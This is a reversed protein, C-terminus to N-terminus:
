SKRGRGPGNGRGASAGGSRAVPASLRTGGGEARDVTLMGGAQEARERLNHLGSHAVTAPVGIGDDTVDIALDNDVSLTVTITTAHAHRIADSLAERVVAEAHEGLKPSVVGLPGCIRVTTRLNTDGTLEAVVEHLRKRLQSTGELGGHLDFITTRIDGIVNQVDEIMDALRRQTDPSRSRLRTSQLSLGHAFLRQIVRDHLDRAIRDRDALVDLERLRRQDNARQLALAAQDAFSAALPLQHPDFPLEGTTRLLVLVGLISEASARLPLVLAPGFEEELGASLDYSLGPERRPQADRFARGYTSREVPIDRGTLGDADLGACVAVTLATVDATALEPDDPQAIFAYDAGTLALARNAILHLVDAPDAAALLEARIESTAAQWDQRLRAEEYLRANEVAVGAAAALAQVVVEDDETFPQGGAKEALYLNGFM